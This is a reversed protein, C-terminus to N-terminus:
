RGCCGCPKRRMDAGFRVTRACHTAPGGRAMQQQAQDKRPRASPTAQWQVRMPRGGTAWGGRGGAPLAARRSGAHRFGDATPGGVPPGSEPPRGPRARGAHGPLPRGARGGAPRTARIRWRRRSSSVRRTRRRLKASRRWGCPPSRGTRGPRCCRPSRTTSASIRGSPTRTAAPSYTGAADGIRSAGHGYGPARHQDLVGLFGRGAPRLRALRIAAPEPRPLNRAGARVAGRLVPLAM